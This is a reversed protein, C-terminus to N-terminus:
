MAILGGHAKALQALFVQGHLQLVFRTLKKSYQTVYPHSELTLTLNPPLCPVYTQHINCPLIDATASDSKGTCIIIAVCHCFLNLNSKVSTGFGLRSTM